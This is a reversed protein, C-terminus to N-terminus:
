YQESYVSSLWQMLTGTHWIRDAWERQLIEPKYYHCQQLTARVLAACLSFGIDSGGRVETSRTSYHWHVWEYCMADTYRHTWDWYKSYRPQILPMENTQGWVVRWRGYADERGTMCGDQVRGVCVDLMGWGWIFELQLGFSSRVQWGQIMTCRIGCGGMIICSRRIPTLHGDFWRALWRGDPNIVSDHPLTLALM